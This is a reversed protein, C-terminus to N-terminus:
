TGNTATIRVCKGARRCRRSGCHSRWGLQKVNDIIRGELIDDFWEDPRDHGSAQGTEIAHLAVARLGAEGCFRPPRTRPAPRSM